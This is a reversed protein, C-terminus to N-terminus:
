DVLVALSAKSNVPHAESDGLVTQKKMFQGKKTGPSM